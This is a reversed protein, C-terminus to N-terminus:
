WWYLSTHPVMFQAESTMNPM